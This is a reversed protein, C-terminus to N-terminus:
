PIKHSIIKISLEYLFLKSIFSTKGLVQATPIYSPTSISPDPIGTVMPQGFSMKTRAHEEAALAVTGSVAARYWEDPLKIPV